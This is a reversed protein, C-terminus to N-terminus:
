KYKYEQFIESVADRVKAQTKVMDPHLIGSAFGQWVMESTKADIFDILLTGAKVKTKQVNEATRVTDAGMNITQFGNYTTLEAPQELIMFTVFMDPNDKDMKYGRASLEYAIAEKINSRATENNFVLVGDPGVFIKDKPIEDINSSWAFTKYNRIAADLEKDTGVKQANVVSFCTFMAVVSFFLKKMIFYKVNIIM